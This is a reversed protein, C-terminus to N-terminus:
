VVTAPLRSIIDSYSVYIVSMGTITFANEIMKIRKDATPSTNPKTLRLHTPPHKIQQEQQRDIGHRM